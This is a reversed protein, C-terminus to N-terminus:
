FALKIIKTILNKYSYGLRQMLVPFMSIDTFGPLTNVENLYVTGNKVFMDVRAFGSCCCLKYVKEALKVSQQTEKETIDAPIITQTRDLKYKEDYDYFDSALNLRAPPSIELGANGLVAVEIEKHGTFGEEIIIKFDHKKAEVIASDIKNFDDVRIVGVSSGSNAPKVYIPLKFKGTETLNKGISDADDLKYDLVVYKAQPVSHGALLNKFVAKDMCLASSLVRCGAYPIFQSEFLAQLIGDEGFKGHTIPFALDIHKKFEEILIKEGNKEEGINTVKFFKGDKSWYILVLDSKSSDFNKAINKASKISIEHENGSGGYFLGIKKM